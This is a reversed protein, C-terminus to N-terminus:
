EDIPSLRREVELSVMEETFSHPRRGVALWALFLTLVGMPLLPLLGPFFPWLIWPITGAAGLALLTRGGGTLHVEELSLLIELRDTGCFDALRFLTECTPIHGKNLIDSITDQGVGAHVSAAVQTMNHRGLQDRMWQALDAM